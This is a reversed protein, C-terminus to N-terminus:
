LEIAKPAFVRGAQIHATFTTTCSLSIQALKLNCTENFPIYTCAFDGPKESICSPGHQHSSPAQLTKALEWGHHSTCSLSIGTCSNEVPHSLVDVEHQLPCLLPQKGKIAGKWLGRKKTFKHSHARHICVQTAVSFLLLFFHLLQYARSIQPGTLVWIASLSLVALTQPTHRIGNACLLM